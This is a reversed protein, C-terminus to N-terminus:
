PEVRVETGQPVPPGTVAEGVTQVRGLQTLLAPASVGVVLAAYVGSIQGSLGFLVACAAGMGMHVLAAVADPIPDFYDGFRPPPDDGEGDAARRYERRAEQWAMTQNYVDVLARLSGGAAGLVLLLGADM